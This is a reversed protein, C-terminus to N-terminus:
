EECKLTASLLYNAKESDNSSSTFEYNYLYDYESQNKIDFAFVIELWCMNNTNLYESKQFSFDFTLNLQKAENYISYNRNSIGVDVLASSFYSGTSGKYYKVTSQIQSFYNSTLLKYNNNNGNTYTLSLDFIVKEREFTSYFLGADFKIFYTIFTNLTVTENVVFGKTNFNFMSVGSYPAKDGDGKASNLSLYDSAIIVDGYNFSIESESHGSESGIIFSSFGLSFLCCCSAISLLLFSDIKTKRLKM